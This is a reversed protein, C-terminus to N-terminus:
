EESVVATFFDVLIMMTRGLPLEVYDLDIGVFANDGVEYAERKIKFLAIRRTDRRGM